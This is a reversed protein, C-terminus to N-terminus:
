KTQVVLAHGGDLGSLIQQVFAWQQALVPGCCLSSVSRLSAATRLAAEVCIRGSEATCSAGFFRWFRWFSQWRRRRWRRSPRRVGMSYSVILLTM